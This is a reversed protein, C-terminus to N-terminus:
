GSADSGTGHKSRQQLDAVAPESLSQIGADALADVVKQIDVPRWHTREAAKAHRHIAYRIERQLRDPLHALTVEGRSSAPKLYEDDAAIASWVNWAGDDRDRGSTELWKLWQEHHVECM